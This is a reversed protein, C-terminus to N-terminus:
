AVAGVAVRQGGGSQEGARERRDIGRKLRRSATRRAGLVGVPCRGLGIEHDTDAQGIRGVIAVAGAASVTGGVPRSVPRRDGERTTRLRRAERRGADDAFEAALDVRHEREGPADDGGDAVGPVREPVAREGVVTLYEEIPRALAAEDALAAGPDGHRRGIGEVSQGM